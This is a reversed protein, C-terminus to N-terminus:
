LNVKEDIISFQKSVENLAEKSMKCSFGHAAEDVIGFATFKFTENTKKENNGIFGRIEDTTVGDKVHVFYMGPVRISRKTRRLKEMGGHISPITVAALVALLVLVRYQQFHM